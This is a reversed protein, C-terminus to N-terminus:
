RAGEHKRRLKEKLIEKRRAALDGRGSGARGFLDKGLEWAMAGRETEKALAEKLLARLYASKTVGAAAAARALGRELEEPLRLTTMAYQM